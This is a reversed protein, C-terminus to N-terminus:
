WSSQSDGIPHKDATGPPRTDAETGPPVLDPWVRHRQKFDLGLARILKIKTNARCPLHYRELNGVTRLSVGSKKALQAQTLLRARRWEKLQNREYGM